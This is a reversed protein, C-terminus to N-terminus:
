EMTFSTKVMTIRTGDIATYKVEYTGVGDMPSSNYDYHYKGLEDRSMDKEDVMINGQPNTITIKVGKTPDKPAREEDQVEISCIVTEGAIFNPMNNEGTPVCIINLNKTANLSLIKLIRDLTTKLIGQIRLTSQGVLWHIRKITNPMGIIAMAGQGVILNFSKAFSLGGAMRVRGQGALGFVMERSDIAGVIALVGLGVVKSLSPLTLSQVITLIGQGVNQYVTPNYDVEVYVQTCYAYNGALAKLSVGIQLAVIDAWTWADTGPPAPNTNWQQSHTVYDGSELFIETGDTVTTNSKLSPKAYGKEPNLPRCRFYIKISNITGSGAPEPINYLDRDYAATKDTSVRTTDGDAEAEDVDQWHLGNGTTEFPISEEDGVADPRLTEVDNRLDVSRLINGDPSSLILYNGKQSVIGWGESLRRAVYQECTEHKVLEM